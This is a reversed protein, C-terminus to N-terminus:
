FKVLQPTSFSMRLWIDSVTLGDGSFRMCIGFKQIPLSGRGDIDLKRLKLLEM